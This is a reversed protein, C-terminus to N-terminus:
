KKTTLFHYKNLLDDLEKSLKVVEENKLSTESAILIMDKRCKEIHRLLIQLYNNM